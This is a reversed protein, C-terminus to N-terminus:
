YAPDGPLPWYWQWPAADADADRKKYAPISPPIWYWRWPAADRKKYAPDGPLPWYWQWPQADRKAHTDTPVKAVYIALHTTNRAFVPAETENFFIVTKIDLGELTYPLPDSTIVPTNGIVESATETETGPTASVFSAFLTFAAIASTSFKM